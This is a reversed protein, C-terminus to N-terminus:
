FARTPADRDHGRARCGRERERRPVAGRADEGATTGRSAAAFHRRRRDAALRSRPSHRSDAGGGRRFRRRRGGGGGGGRLLVGLGRAVEELELAVVLPADDARVPLRDVWRLVPPDRVHFLLPRRGAVVLSEEVVVPLRVELLVRVGRLLVDFGRQLARLRRIRERHQFLLLPLLRAHRPLLLALLVDERVRELPGPPIATMMGVVVVVVVPLLRRPERVRRRLPDFDVLDGRLHGRLHEVEVVRPLIERPVVVVIRLKAGAHGRVQRRGFFGRSEAKVIRVQVDVAFRLARGRHHEGPESGLLQRAHSLEEVLEAPVVDRHDGDRLRVERPRQAVRQRERFGVPLGRAHALPEVLAALEPRLARHDEAPEVAALHRADDGRDFAPPERPQQGRHDRRVVRLLREPLRERGRHLLRALLFPPPLSEALLERALADRALEALKLSFRPPLPQADLLDDRSLDLALVLGRRVVRRRRARPVLAHTQVLRMQLLQLLLVDSLGPRPRRRLRHRAPRGRLRVRRPPRRQLVGHAVDKLFVPHLNAQVLLCLVADLSELPLVVVVVVLAAVRRRRRRRSRSFRRPLVVEVRGVFDAASKEEFMEAAGAGAGAGGPPIKSRGGAATASRAGGGGGGISSGGLERGFGIVADPTTPALTSATSASAAGSFSTTSACTIVLFINRSSAARRPTDYVSNARCASALPTSNGSSYYLVGVLDTM